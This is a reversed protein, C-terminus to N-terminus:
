PTWAKTQAAASHRKSSVDTSTIGVTVPGTTYQTLMAPCDMFMNQQVTASCPARNHARYYTVAPTLYGIADPEWKNGTTLTADLGTLEYKAIESGTFHCTDTNGTTGQQEAVSRGVFNGSRTLTMKWFHVTAQTGTGWTGAASTEGTPIPCQVEAPASGWEEYTGYEYCNLGDWGYDQQTGIFAFVWGEGAATGNM